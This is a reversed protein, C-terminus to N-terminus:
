WTGVSSSTSSRARWETLQSPAVPRRRGRSSAGSRVEVRDAERELLREDGLERRVPEVARVRGTMTCLKSTPCGGALEVAEGVDREGLEDVALPRRVVERDGAVGCRRRGRSGPPGRRSRRSRRRRRCRSSRPSGACPRRCARRASAPSRAVRVRRTELHVAPREAALVREEGGLEARAGVRGAIPSRAPSIRTNTSAPRSPSKLSLGSTATEAIRQAVPSALSPPDSARPM